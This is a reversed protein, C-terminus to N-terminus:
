GELRYVQLLEHDAVRRLPRLRALEAIVPEAAAFAFSKTYFLVHGGTGFHFISADRLAQADMWDTFHVDCPCEGVRLGWYDNWYHLV